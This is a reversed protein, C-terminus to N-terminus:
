EKSVKLTQAGKESTVRIIYLGREMSSFDLELSTKESSWVANVPYSRGIRDYINVSLGAPAKTL